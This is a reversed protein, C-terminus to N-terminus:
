LRTSHGTCLSRPQLFNKKFNRRSAGRVNVSYICSEAVSTKAGVDIFFAAFHSVYHSNCFGTFWWFKSRVKCKRTIGPLISTPTDAWVGWGRPATQFCVQKERPPPIQADVLLLNKSAAYRDDRSSYARMMNDDRKTTKNSGPANMKSHFEHPHPLPRDHSALDGVRLM